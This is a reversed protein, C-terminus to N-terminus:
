ILKKIFQEIDKNYHGFSDKELSDDKKILYLNETKINFKEIHCNPCSLFLVFKFDKNKQKLWNCFKISVDIENFDKKTESCNNLDHSKRIFLIKKDTNFLEFLREIRKRFINKFEQESIKSHHLYVVNLENVYFSNVMEINLFKDIDNNIIADVILDWDRSVAWDIPYASTRIHYAELMRAITCDFGLSIVEDYKTNFINEM